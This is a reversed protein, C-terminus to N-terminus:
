FLNTIRELSGMELKFYQVHAMFAFIGSNIADQTLLDLALSFM